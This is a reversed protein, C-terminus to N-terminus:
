LFRIAGQTLQILSEDEFGIEKVNMKVDVRRHVDSRYVSSKTIFTFNLRNTGKNTMNGDM